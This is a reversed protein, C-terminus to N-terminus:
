YQWAFSATPLQLLCVHQWTPLGLVAICDLPQFAHKGALM